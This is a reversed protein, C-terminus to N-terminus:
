KNFYIPHKSSYFYFFGKITKSTDLLFSDAVDGAFPIDIIKTNGEEKVTGDSIVNFSLLIDVYWDFIIKGIQSQTIDVEIEALQSFSM